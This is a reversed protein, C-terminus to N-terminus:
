SGSVANKFWRIEVKPATPSGDIVVVDIRWDEGVEPHNQIYDEASNILHEQKAWSVSEEGFGFSNSQRTKVEFFVVQDTDKGIIDLEGYHTRQNTGLVVIGKEELYHRAKMEGWEGLEKNKMSNPKAKM